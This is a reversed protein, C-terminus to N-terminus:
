EMYGLLQLQELIQKKEDEDMAETMKANGGSATPAGIEIPHTAKFEPHVDGAARGGRLRFAGEPRPQLAPDVHCDTIHRKGLLKGAVIGPGYALFVGDPHHTGVVYNRDEVIPLINRVSVFGFDRLVLQLDPADGM